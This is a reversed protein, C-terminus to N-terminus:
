LAPAYIRLDAPWERPDLGFRDRLTPQKGLQKVKIPLGETQASAISNRLDDMDMLRASGGTEGGFAVFEVDVGTFDIAELLPQACIFKRVPLERLIAYRTDLSKQDETSIGYKINPRIYDRRFHEIRKTLFLFEHQSCATVFDLLNKRWSSPVNQDLWDMAPGVFVVHPTSRLLHRAGVYHYDPTVCCNKCGTSVKTCGQWEDHTATCWNRTTIRSM